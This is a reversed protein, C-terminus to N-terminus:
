LCDQKIKDSVKDMIADFNKTIDSLAKYAGKGHKKDFGKSTKAKDFATAAESSQQSTFSPASPEAQQQTLFKVAAFWPKEYGKPAEYFELQSVDGKEDVLIETINDVLENQSTVSKLGADEIAKRLGIVDSIFDDPGLLEVVPVETFGLERLAELRHQGEIVEGDKSVILRSIYGGESTIEEKLKDVRRREKEQKLDVGGSLESIPKTTNKKGATLGSSQAVESVNDSPPKIKYDKLKPTVKEEKAEAKKGEKTEPAAPAPTVPAAKAEEFSIIEGNRMPIFKAAVEGKGNKILYRHYGDLLQKEGTNVDVGVVIPEKSPKFSKDTELTQRATEIGVDLVKLEQLKVKGTTHERDGGFGTSSITLAGLLEKPLAAPAQAAAEEAAIEEDIKRQAEAVREVRQNEKAVDVKSSSEARAPETKNIAIEQQQEISMKSIEEDTYGLKRLSPAFGEPKPVQVEPLEPRLVQVPAPATEEQALLAAEEEPTLETEEIQALEEETLPAVTAEETVPTVEEFPIEEAVPPQPAPFDPNVTQIVAPPTARLGEGLGAEIGTPEPQIGKEAMYQELRERIADKEKSDPLQAIGDYASVVEDDTLELADNLKRYRERIQGEAEPNAQIASEMAKNLNNRQILKDDTMVVSADPRQTAKGIKPAEFLTRDMASQFVQGAGGVGAGGILGGVFAEERQRKAQPTFLEKPLKEFFAKTTPSKAAIVGIQGTGEQLYETTGEGVGVGLLAAGRALNRNVGQSLLWDRMSKYAGRSAMSKSVLGAGLFELASQVGSSITAIIMADDGNAIVQEPSIGKEKAIAEVGDKYAQPLTQLYTSGGMTLISPIIQMAADGVTYLVAEPIDKYQEKEIAQLVSTQINRKAAEDQFRKQSQAANKFMENRAIDQVSQTAEIEPLGARLTGNVYYELSSLIGEGIRKGGAAITGAVDGAWEGFGREKKEKPMQPQVPPKFAMERATETVSPIPKQAPEPAMVGVPEVPEIPEQVPPQFAMQRAMDTMSPAPEAVPAAIGVPPITTAKKTPPAPPAQPTFLEPFYTGYFDDKTSAWGKKVAIDSVKDLLVEDGFLREKFKPFSYKRTSEATAEEALMKRYLDKKKQENDDLLEAM